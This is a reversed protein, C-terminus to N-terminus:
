RTGAATGDSKWLETGTAEQYAAFFLTGKVDALNHPAFNFGEPNEHTQKANIDKVLVPQAAASQPNCPWWLSAALLTSLLLRYNNQM